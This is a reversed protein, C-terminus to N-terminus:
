RRRRLRAGAGAVHLCLFTLALAVLFGTTVPGIRANLVALVAALACLAAAIYALV